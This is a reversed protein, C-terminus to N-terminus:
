QIKKKEPFLFVEPVNFYAPSDHHTTTSYRTFVHLSLTNVNGTGHKWNELNMHSVLSKIIKKFIKEKSLTFCLYNTKILSIM